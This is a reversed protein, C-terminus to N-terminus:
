FCRQSTPGRAGTLIQESTLGFRRERKQYNILADLLDDEDFDPWLKDTVYIETYATQWLLFNSIRMEGGTRILLDPDPLDATYLYHNFAKEDIEEVSLKGAQVEEAIRKVADIIEARGGYSIALNLTMGHNGATAQCTEILKERVAEPLLELRGMSTLRINNEMLTRFERGLYNRLLRMLAKVEDTPRSWNELSFAYLTLISVGIQGCFTVLRRAAEAGQRHGRVRNLRKERAWRGNGDMILAIHTPLNDKSFGKLKEERINLTEQDQGVMVKLKVGM